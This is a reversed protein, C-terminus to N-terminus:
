SKKLLNLDAAYDVADGNFCRRCKECVGRIDKVNNLPCIAEDHKKPMKSTPVYNDFFMVAIYGLEELDPKENKDCQYSFFYNSSYPKLELFQRRRDLSNRDLSFHIFVNPLDDIKSAWEPLRTVVWIKIDPRKRGLYNIAEVNEAFLDGGGNWRMFNLGLSDYELAVREAFDYPNARVTNLTKLQHKLSNTWSAAGTAFYCNKVCVATPRCTNAIPFNVSYGTVKNFSLVTEYSGLVEPEMMMELKETKAITKGVRLTLPFRGTRKVSNVPSASELHLPKNVMLTSEIAKQKSIIEKIVIKANKNNWLRPSSRVHITWGTGRHNKPLFSLKGALHYIPVSSTLDLDYEIKVPIRVPFIGDSWIPATDIFSPGTIKLTGIFASVKTLYCLIVDGPLLKAVTNAKNENFGMVQGGHRKFERWSEVTFLGLYYNPKRAAIAEKNNNQVSSKKLQSM